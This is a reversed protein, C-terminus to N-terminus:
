RNKKQQYHASSHQLFSQPDEFDAWVAADVHVVEIHPWSLKM